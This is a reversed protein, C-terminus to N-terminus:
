DFTWRLNIHLRNSRATDFSDGDLQAAWDARLTLHDGMRLRLGVGSSSFVRSSDTQPDTQNDIAQGMDYFFLGRVRASSEPVHKLLLGKWRPTFVEMQLAYGRDGSTERQEFGRVSDTGGLGIQEGPMLTQDTWQFSLSLRQEWDMPLRTRREINLHVYQYQAEAFPRIGRLNEDTNRNTLNGPSWVTRLKGRTSGYEDPRSAEYEFVGQIVEAFSDSVTTGSFEINNNTRTFDFGFSVTHAYEEIDQLPIRYRGGLQWNEGEVEFGPDLTVKSSGFGGFFLLEHRWPLPWIYSGSHAVLKDVSPDTTLRYRLRHGIEWADGWNVEAFLRDRDTRQNGTNQYGTAFVLPRRDRALIKMNTTGATDGQEFLIRASRFPNRDIWQLDEELTHANILDGPQVRILRLYREADFFRNGSVELTGVRSVLVVVQVTGRTVDQPPVYVDVVPWGAGGAYEVVERTLQNLQPMTLARNMYRQEVLQKFADTDLWNLERIYVGKLEMGDDEVMSPDPLFLLGDLSYLVLQESALARQSSAVICLLGMVVFLWFLQFTDNIGTCRSFKLKSLYM